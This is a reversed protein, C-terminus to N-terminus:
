RMGRYRQLAQFLPYCCGAVIGGTVMWGLAGGGVLEQGLYTGAICGVLALASKWIWDM